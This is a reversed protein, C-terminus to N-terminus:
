CCCFVLGNLRVGCSVSVTASSFLQLTGSDSSFTIGMGLTVGDESLITVEPLFHVELGPLKCGEIM